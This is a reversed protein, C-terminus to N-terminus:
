SCWRKCICLWYCNSAKQQQLNFPLQKLPNIKAAETTKKSNDILQCNETEVENKYITFM